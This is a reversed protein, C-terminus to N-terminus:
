NKPETEKIYYDNWAFGHTFYAVMEGTEADKYDAGMGGNPFIILRTPYNQIFAYFEEREVKKTVLKREENYQKILEDLDKKNM